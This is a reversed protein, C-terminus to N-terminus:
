QAASEADILDAELADEKTEEDEETDQTSPIDESAVPPTGTAETPGETAGPTDESGDKDAGTLWKGRIVPVTDGQETGELDYEHSMFAGIWKNIEDPKNTLGPVSAVEISFNILDAVTCNMPLLRAKKSSISESTAIGYKQSIDGTMGTFTEMVAFRKNNMENIASIIAKYAQGVEHVSAKSRQAVELRQRIAQYGEENNFTDVTRMLPIEPKDNDKGLQVESKFAPANAVLVSESAVRELSLYIAPLGYGDVPAVLTFSQVFDDDNITWSESMKYIVHMVGESYKIARIRHPYRGIIHMLSDYDVYAKSPNTVSLAINGENIVRVATRPDVQQIRNFVEDPTFLKFISQGFGFRSCMSIVFRNTTAYKQGNYIIRTLNRRICGNNDPIDEWEPTIEGIECHFEGFISRRGDYYQLMRTVDSKDTIDVIPAPTPNFPKFM